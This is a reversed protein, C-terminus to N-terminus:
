PNATTRGCYTERIFFSLVLGIALCVPLLTLAQQYAHVANTTQMAHDLWWGILPQLLPAGILICMLNTYAMSTGRVAAPMIDRMVAFPLAYVSSFFGSFFLLAFMLTLPIGPVYLIILMLILVLATGMIMPFRRLGLRDSLWGLVPAGLAVGFLTM